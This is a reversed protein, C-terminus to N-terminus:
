FKDFYNQLAILVAERVSINEECAYTKIANQLDEPMDRIQLTISNPNKRRFIKRTIHTMNVLEGADERRDIEAQIEPECEDCILIKGTMTGSTPIKGCVSCLYKM